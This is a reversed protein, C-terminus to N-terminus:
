QVPSGFVRLGLLSLLILVVVGFGGFISRRYPEPGFYGLGGFVVSLVLILWFWVATSM